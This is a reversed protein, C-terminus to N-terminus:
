ARRERAAKSVLTQVDGHRPARTIPEIRDDFFDPM